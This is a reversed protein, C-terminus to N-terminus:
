GAPCPPTDFYLCTPEAKREWKCLTGVTKDENLAVSWPGRMNSMKPIVDNEVSVTVFANCANQFNIEDIWTLVDITTAGLSTYGTFHFINKGNGARMTDGGDSDWYMNVIDENSRGNIQKKPIGRRSNKKKKRDQARLNDSGGGGSLTNSGEGGFLYDDGGEGYLFDDGEDGYLFDKGPGGMIVDNGTGGHITDSGM